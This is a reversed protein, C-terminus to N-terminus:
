VEQLVKGAMKSLPASEWKPGALIRIRLGEGELRATVRAFQLLDGMTAVPVARSEDVGVGEVYGDVGRLTEFRQEEGDGRLTLPVAGGEGRVTRVDVHWEGWWQGGYEDCCRYATVAQVVHFVRVLACGGM